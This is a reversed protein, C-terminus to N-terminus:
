GEQPADALAEAGADEADAAADAGPEADAAADPAAIGSLSPCGASLAAAVLVGCRWRRMPAGKRRGTTEGLGHRVRTRVDM